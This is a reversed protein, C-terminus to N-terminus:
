LNFLKEIVREKSSKELDDPVKPGTSFYSLPLSWKHSLNFIDGYSFSEDLKSFILSSIGLPSFARIAYDLQLNKQTLPLVLHMNLLINDTQLNKLDQLDKDAKPLRGSTDILITKQKSNALIVKELDHVNDISTFDLDLIKSYVRLTDNGLIKAHDYSILIIDKKHKRKLLSALKVLATTKGSGSPGVFCHMNINEQITEFPAFIAIKALFYRIALSRYYETASTFAKSEPGGYRPVLELHKQLALLTSKEIGALLLTKYLEQYFDPVKSDKDGQKYGIDLLLVYLEKMAFELRNFEERRVMEEGLVTLRRNIGGFMGELEEKDLFLSSDGGASAGKLQRKEPFAVKVEVIKKKENPLMKESTGIIVADKGVEKKIDRMVDKISFGEFIKVQM